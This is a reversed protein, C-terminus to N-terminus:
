MAADVAPHVPVEVLMPVTAIAVVPPWVHLVEDVENAIPSQRFTTAGEVTSVVAALGVM